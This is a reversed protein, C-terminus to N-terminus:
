SSVTNDVGRLGWPESEQIVDLVIWCECLMAMSVSM